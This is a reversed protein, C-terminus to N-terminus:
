GGLSKMKGEENVSISSWNVLDLSLLLLLLSKCDCPSFVSFFSDAGRTALDLEDVPPTGISGVIDLKTAMANTIGSDAAVNSSTVEIAGSEGADGDVVLGGVTLEDVSCFVQSEDTGVEGRDDTISVEDEDRGASIEDGDVGFATAGGKILDHADRSREGAALEVNDVDVERGEKAVYVPDGM